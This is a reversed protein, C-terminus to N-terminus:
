QSVPIDLNRSALIRLSVNARWSVDKPIFSGILTVASWLAIGGVMLWKRNYRDGAYGFIPATVCFGVVFISQLLGAQGDGIDNYFHQVDGLVGTHVIYLLIYM